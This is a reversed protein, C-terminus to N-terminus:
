RAPTPECRTAKMASNFLRLATKDLDVERGAAQEAFAAADEPHVAGSAAAQRERALHM